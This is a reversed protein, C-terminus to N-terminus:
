KLIEGNSAIVQRYWDFSRKKYRTLTGTGDDNRDVYIFGYRKKLEATSASVLDICGWTTYGIVDVGDTIAERVQILHDNLKTNFFDGISQMLDWLVLFVIFDVVEYVLDYFRNLRWLDEIIADSRIFGHLAMYDEIIWMIIITLILTIFSITFKSIGSM